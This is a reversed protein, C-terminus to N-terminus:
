FLRLFSTACVAIGGPGGMPGGIGGGIGGKSPYGGATGNTWAVLSLEILLSVPRHFKHDSAEQRHCVPVQELSPAPAQNSAKHLLVAWEQAQVQAQFDQTRWTPYTVQEEQEKLGSDRLLWPALLKHHSSSLNVLVAWLQLSMRSHKLWRAQCEVRQLCEVQRLQWKNLSLPKAKPHRAQCEM